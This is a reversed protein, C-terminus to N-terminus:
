ARDLPEAEQSQQPSRWIGMIPKYEASVMLGGGSRCPLKHGPRETSTAMSRTDTHRYPSAMNATRSSVRLFAAAVSHRCVADPSRNESAQSIAEMIM